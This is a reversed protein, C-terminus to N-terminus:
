KEEELNFEERIKQCIFLAWEEPLSSIIKFFKRFHEELKAETPFQFEKRLTLVLKILETSKSILNSIANLMQPSPKESSLSQIALTILSELKRIKDELSLILSQIEMISSDLSKTRQFLQETIKKPKYHLRLHRALTEYSFKEKYKKVAVERWITKADVGEDYLREYEFRHESKCVACRPM